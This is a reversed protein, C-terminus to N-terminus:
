AIEIDEKYHENGNEDVFYLNGQGDDKWEIDILDLADDVTMSHNTTITFLRQGNMRDVLTMTTDEKSKTIQIIGHGNTLTLVKKLKKAFFNKVVM